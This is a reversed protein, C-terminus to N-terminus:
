KKRKSAVGVVGGGRYRHGARCRCGGSGLTAAVDVVATSSQSNL